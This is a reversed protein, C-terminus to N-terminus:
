LGDGQLRRAVLQRRQRHHARSLHQAFFGVGQLIKAVLQRAPVAVPRLRGAAPGVRKRAQAGVQAAEAMMRGMANMRATYMAQSLVGLETSQRLNQAQWGVHFVSSGMVFELPRFGASDLLAFESVSLDSTWVKGVEGLRASSIQDPAFQAEDAM